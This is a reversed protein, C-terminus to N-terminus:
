QPTWSPAAGFLGAVFGTRYAVFLGFVLSIV